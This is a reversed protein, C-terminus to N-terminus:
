YESPRLVRAKVVNQWKAIESRLFASFQEPSSGVPENGSKLLADMSDPMMLTRRSEIGLRQVIDLPTGAPAYLGYWLTVEYGPISESIAPVDPIERFRKPGTVALARIKGTKTHNVVAATSAFLLDTEGGMLGIVATGTAKFPVHTLRLNGMLQFLEAALHPGGGSGSSAYTLRDPKAKALAILQRITTIPVAPHSALVFQSSTLQSICAFDKLPDYPLNSRMAPHTSMELASILLTYGDPKAKAVYNAGITASAGPKNEVLFSGGTQEALRQALLRGILDTGGGPTFPSVIHVPRTPWTQAALPLAMM